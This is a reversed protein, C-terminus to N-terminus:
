TKKRPLYDEVNFEVSPPRDMLSRMADEITVGHNLIEDVAQCIPMEVDLAKALKSISRSSYYGETLYKSSRVAEEVKKGAGIEFGFQYNRSTISTSTLCLDGLGSLGYLTEVRGNKAVTLKAIEALGRTIIMARANEGLKYGAVIGSAIALVNKLAGGMQSGIIDDSAYVRFSPSNFARALWTSTTINEAALTVASPQGKFVEEAFSPGSIIGLSINPLTEAIVESMLYGTTQEIGKSALVLYSDPQVYDILQTSVARVFQAPVALVIINAQCAEALDTTAHISDSVKHGPFCEPNFRTELIGQVTPQDKSWITTKTGARDAAAAIATGWAGSGIVSLSTM